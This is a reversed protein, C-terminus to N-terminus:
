SPNVGARKATLALATWVLIGAGVYWGLIMRIDAYPLAAVDSAAGAAMLLSVSFVLKGALAQLSVYTGRM